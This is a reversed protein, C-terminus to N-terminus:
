SANIKHNTLKWYYPLACVTNEATNMVIQHHLPVQQVHAGTSPLPLIGSQNVQQQQPQAQQLQQQQHHRHITQQSM